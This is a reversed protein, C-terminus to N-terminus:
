NELIETRFSSSDLCFVPFADFFQEVLKRDHRNDAGALYAFCCELPEYSTLTLNRNVVEVKFVWGIL